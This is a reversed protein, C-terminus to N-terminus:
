AGVASYYKMGTKWIIKRLLLSLVIWVAQVIFGTLLASGGVKGLLVEIPFGLMYRFPLFFNIREIFDPLLVTPILQGSFLLVLTNNVNLIANTQAKKLALLALAYGVTFRLIQALLLALLFCLIQQPTCSITLGFILTLLVSFVFAFPVCIVKVALDSAIAEYVPPLPRLLWNSFDGSFISDGVTWNSVPYTLQNVVILIIYYNIFDNKSFAGIGSSGAAAIWVLMYVLPMMMWGFALTWFFGRSTTFGFLSKKMLAFGGKLNM